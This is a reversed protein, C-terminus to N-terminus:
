TEVRMQVTDDGAATQLEIALTPDGTLTLIEQRHFHQALQEAALEQRSEFGHILRSLQRKGAANSREFIGTGKLLQKIRQIAAFPDDVGFPWEAAGSQNKAVETAIRM